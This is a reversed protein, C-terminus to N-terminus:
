EQNVMMVALLSAEVLLMSLPIMARGRLLGGLIIGEYHRENTTKFQWRMSKDEDSDMLLFLCGCSM